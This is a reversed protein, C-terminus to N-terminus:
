QIRQGAGGRSVPPRHPKRLRFFPLPHLRCPATVLQRAAVAPQYVRHVKSYHSPSSTALHLELRKTVRSGRSHPSPM